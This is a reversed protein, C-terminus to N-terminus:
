AIAPSSQGPSSSSGNCGNLLAVIFIIGALYSLARKMRLSEGPSAIYFHIRSRMACNGSHTTGPNPKDHIAPPRATEGDNQGGPFFPGATFSAKSAVPLFSVKCLWAIERHCESQIGNAFM